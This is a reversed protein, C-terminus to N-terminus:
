LASVLKSRNKRWRELMEQINDFSSQAKVEKKASEWDFCHNVIDVDLLKEMERGIWLPYNPEELWENLLNLVDTVTAKRGSDRELVWAAAIVLRVNANRAQNFCPPEPLENKYKISAQATLADIPPKTVVQSKTSTNALERVLTYIPLQFADAWTIWDSLTGTKPVPKGDALLRLITQVFQFALKAAAITASHKRWAGQAELESLSSLGLQSSINLKLQEPPPLGVLLFAAEAAAIKSSNKYKDWDVPALSAFFQDGLLVGTDDFPYFAKTTM